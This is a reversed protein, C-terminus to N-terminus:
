NRIQTHPDFLLIFHTHILEKKPDVYVKNIWMCLYVGKLFFDEKQDVYM